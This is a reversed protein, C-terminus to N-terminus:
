NTSNPDSGYHFTYVIFGAPSGFRADLITTGAGNNIDLTTNSLHHTGHQYYMSGETQYIGGIFPIYIQGGLSDGAVVRDVNVNIEQVIDPTHTVVLTYMTPSLTSLLAIDPTENIMNALGVLQIASANRNRITIGRNTINEFQADAMITDVATTDGSIVDHEGHVYFKGLPAVLQNLANTVVDIADGDINQMTSFLDGGFVIVDPKSANITEVLAHLRNEDFYEGYYLDSFFAIKVGDFDESIKTSYIDISQAKFASPAIVVSHIIMLLLGVLIGGTVLLLKWVTKM